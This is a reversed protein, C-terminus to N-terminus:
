VMIFNLLPYQLALVFKGITESCDCSAKKDCTPLNKAAAAAAIDPGATPGCSSGLQRDVMM